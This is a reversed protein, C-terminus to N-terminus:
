RNHPFDGVVVRIINEGGTPGFRGKMRAKTAANMEAVQEPTFDCHLRRKDPRLTDYEPDAVRAMDIGLVCFTIALIRIVTKM